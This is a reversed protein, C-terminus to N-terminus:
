AHIIRTERLLSLSSFLMHENPQAETKKEQPQKNPKVTDQNKKM